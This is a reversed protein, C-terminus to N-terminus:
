ADCAGGFKYHDMNMDAMLREILLTYDEGAADLANCLENHVVDEIQQTTFGLLSQMHVVLLARILRGNPLADLEAYDPQEIQRRTGLADVLKNAKSM